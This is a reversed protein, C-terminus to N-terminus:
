SQPLEIAALVLGPLVYSGDGGSVTERSVGSEQHTIVVAVGPLVAEQPDMVRGRVSSSGSQAQTVVAGLLCCCTL